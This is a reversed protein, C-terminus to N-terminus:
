FIIPDGKYEGFTLGSKKDEVVEGLGLESAVYKLWIKTTKNTCSVVLAGSEM